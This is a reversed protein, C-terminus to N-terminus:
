HCGGGLPSIGYGLRSCGSGRGKCCDVASGYRWLLYEFVTRDWDRYPRQTRTGVLNTQAYQADRAPIPNSELCSKEGGVTKRSSWRQGQIHTIEEFDSWVRAATAGTSHLWAGAGETKSPSRQGQVHTIKEFDSWCWAAAVGTGGQNSLIQIGSRPKKTM